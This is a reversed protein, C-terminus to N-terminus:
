KGSDEFSGPVKVIFGSYASKKHTADIEAQRGRAREEQTKLLELKERDRAEVFVDYIKRQQELADVIVKLQKPPLTLNDMAQKLGSIGAKLRREVEPDSGVITM